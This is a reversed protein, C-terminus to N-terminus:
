NSSIIKVGIGCQLCKKKDCYESKLQLLAQTDFASKPIVGITRWQEIISNQEPQLSELLQIAKNQFHYNGTSKGYIFYFPIIGNIIINKASEDGLPKSIDRTTNKFTYHSRWYDNVEATLLILLDSVNEAELINTFFSYNNRILAALQAIRITPFNGPRIRMFKWLHTEISHLSHKKKLFLYETKLLSFYEDSRNDDNLLGAQGFLLAELKVSDNRYKRLLKFPTAKALMEFPQSNIHFGFCRTLSRYFAEEWDNVTENLNDLIQLTKFELREVGTKSLVSLIIVSDTNQIQNTCPIWRQQEMLQHFREELLPNFQLVISPIKIGKSTYAPMDDEYTIHLVVNDFAPNKDHGHRFWDSTKLHIEANGVWITNGIKIKVNFYDPGSDTNLEGPHLIAVREGESFWENDKYLKYKWLFSLFAETM